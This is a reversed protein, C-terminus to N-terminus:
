ILDLGRASQLIRGKFGEKQLFESIEKEYLPSSLAILDLKALNERSPKAIKIESNQLFKGEKKDDLDFCIQIKKLIEPKLFSVLTNGHAGAGYLGINEYKALLENFEAIRQKLANSLTSDYFINEQKTYAFKAKKQYFLGMHQDEYLMIKGVCECSLEAMFNSLVGEQFQGCHDNFIEYFRLHTIWEPANPVEIYLLANQKALSLVDRLFEGCHEIHELLHRFIILNPKSELKSVISKDFFGQIHRHKPLNPVELSINSPDITLLSHCHKALSLLLDCRGPAIELLEIKKTNENSQPSLIEQSPLTTQNQPNTKNSNVLEKQSSSTLFNEIAGGHKCM